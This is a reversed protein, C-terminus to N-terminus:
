KGRCVNIPTRGKTRTNLAPHWLGSVGGSRNRFHRQCVAGMNARHLRRACGSGHTEPPDAGPRDIRLRSAACFQNGEGVNAASVVGSLIILFGVLISLWRLGFGEQTYVAAGGSLPYRSCLEMYVFASLGATVAALTFAAPAYMGATGAVKGVLVYIGAGLITGLGYFTILPLSLSRRLAAGEARGGNKSHPELSTM